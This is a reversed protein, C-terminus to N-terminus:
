SVSEAAVIKWEDGVKGWRSRITASEQDSSYKVDFVHQDGEQREGM